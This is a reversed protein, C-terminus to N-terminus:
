LAVRYNAPCHARAQLTGIGYLPSEDVVELVQPELLTAYELRDEKDLLEFIFVEKALKM